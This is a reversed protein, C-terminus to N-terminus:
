MSNARRGEPNKCKDDINVCEGNSWQWRSDCNSIAEGFFYDLGLYEGVVLGYFMMGDAKAKAILEKVDEDLPVWGFDSICLIDASDFAPEQPLLENFLFKFMTNEDNGGHGFWQLFNM